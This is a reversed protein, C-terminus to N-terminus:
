KCRCGDCGKDCVVRWGGNSERRWVSNFTAVQRGQVDFIPGSSHALTGSELVVVTEPAWSFPATPGEFFARWGAVVEDRGQLVETGFFVADDAVFAAFAGLDRNAMSEAFAREAARVAETLQEPTEAARGPGGSFLLWLSMLGLIRM